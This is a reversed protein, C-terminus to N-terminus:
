KNNVVLSGAMMDHLTQKKATFGAMFYGILLTLTSVIKGFHRGTAKGFSLRKGDMDTVKIGLAMKGLTAQKASSEMIAFYLWGLFIGFIQGLIQAGKATEFVRVYVFGIVFGIVFGPVFLVLNDVIYAAFRKWFGAYGMFESVAAGSNAQVGIPYSLCETITFTKGCNSCQGDMGASERGVEFM